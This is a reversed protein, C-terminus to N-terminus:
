SRVHLLQQALFCHNVLVQSQERDRTTIKTLLLLALHAMLMLLTECDWFLVLCGKVGGPQLSSVHFHDVPLGAGGIGVALMVAHTQQWQTLHHGKSQELQGQVIELNFLLM